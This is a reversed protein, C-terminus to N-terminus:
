RTELTKRSGPLFFYIEVSPLLKLSSSLSLLERLWKAKAKQQNLRLQLEWLQKTELPFSTSKSGDIYSLQSSIKSNPRLEARFLIFKLVPIPCMNLVHWLVPGFLVLLVLILAL